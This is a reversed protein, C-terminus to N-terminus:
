FIGMFAGLVGQLQRKIYSSTNLYSKGRLTVELFNLITMRSEINSTEQMLKIIFAILQEFYETM